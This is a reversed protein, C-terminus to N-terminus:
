NKTEVVAKRFLGGRAPLPLASAPQEDVAGRAPNRRNTQRLEVHEIGGGAPIAVVHGVASDGVVASRRVGYHRLDAAALRHQLLRQRTAAQGVVRGWVGRTRRWRPLAGRRSDAELGGDPCLLCEGDAPM